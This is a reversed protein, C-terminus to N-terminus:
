RAALGAHARRFENRALAARIFPYAAEIRAFDDPFVDEMRPLNRLGPVGALSRSSVLYDDALRIGASDILSLIQERTWDFCPYFTRHNDNRGGSDLVYVRRDLSDSANIGFACWANPVGHKFRLCDALQHKSYSWLDLAEIAPIDECPQYVLDDVATAFEPDVYREIPTDFVSEYYELSRDAFSLTPVTACHFPIVRSFFRRLQLWAAVSDKGRSFGLLCTGRSEAAIAACLADSASTGPTEAVAAAM